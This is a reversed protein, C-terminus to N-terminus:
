PLGPTATNWDSEFTARLKAAIVPEQFVIGLERRRERPADQVNESGLFITTGDLVIVKAHIRPRQSVRLALNGSAAAQRLDILARERPEVPAAVIRVRVQRAAAAVIADLLPSPLLKEAYVDLTRQTAGVANTLAANSNEPSVVFGDPIAGVSRRNWDAEFLRQVFDVDARDDDAVAFDRQSRFSEATSNHTLILARRRDIVAYKAHTLAFAPNSMQVDIGRSRLAAAGLAGITGDKEPSPELLVRVRVGREQAEALSQILAPEDLTFPVFDITNAAAHFEASLPGSGDDPEVALLTIQCPKGDEAGCLLAIPGTVVPASRARICAPGAVLLVLAAMLLAGRITRGALSWRPM